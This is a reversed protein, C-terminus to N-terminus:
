NLKQISQQVFQQSIREQELRLKQSVLYHYLKREDPMLYNLTKIKPSNAVVFNEFAEFTKIDMLFSSANPYYQRIMNLMEFGSGDLDFWCYIDTNQLWPIHKTLSSKFGEGFIAIADKIKPFTLFCTKNEIIFVKSPTWKLWAVDDLPLSCEKYGLYPKLEDDLLRIQTFTNAKKLYYRLTFDTENKNIMKEPLLIDLLKKLIGTHQEIFKSHVEFPLERIYYPYPASNSTFFKCVLLLEEWETAYTLLISPNNSAWIVLEAFYITILSHAHSIKKYDVSRHTLYLYDELTEIYINTPVQQRTGNIIKYKWDVSYGKGIISKSGQYLPLVDNKWDTYNSGTIQKDSRIAIPFILSGKLQASMIKFFQKDAKTKLEAPTIM